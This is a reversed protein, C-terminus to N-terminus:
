RGAKDAVTGQVIDVMVRNSSSGCMLLNNSVDADATGPTQCNAFLNLM